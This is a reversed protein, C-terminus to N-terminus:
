HRGLYRIPPTKASFLYNLAEWEPFPSVSDALMENRHVLSSVSLFCFGFSQNRLSFSLAGGLILQLMHQTRPPVVLKALSLLESWPWVWAGKARIEGLWGQHRDAGWYRCFKELSLFWNRGRKPLEVAVLHIAGDLQLYAHSIEAQNTKDSRIFTQLCAKLILVSM